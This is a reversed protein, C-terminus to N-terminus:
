DDTGGVAGAPHPAGLALLAAELDASPRRQTGGTRGPYRWAAVASQSCGLEEALGAMTRGTQRMWHTLARHWDPDVSADLRDLEARLRAREADLEGLRTSLILRDTM